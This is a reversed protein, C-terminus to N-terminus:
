DAQFSPDNTSEGPTDGGDTTVIGITKDCEPCHVEKSKTVGFFDIVVANYGKGQWNCNACHLDQEEFTTSSYEPVM